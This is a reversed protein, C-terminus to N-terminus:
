VAAMSPKMIIIGVKYQSKEPTTPTKWGDQMIKSLSAKVILIEELFTDLIRQSSTSDNLKM